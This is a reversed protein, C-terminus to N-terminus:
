TIDRGNQTLSPGACKNFTVHDMLFPLVEPVAEESVALFNHWSGAM